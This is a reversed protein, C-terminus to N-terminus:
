TNVYLKLVFKGEAVLVERGDQFKLQLVQSDIASLEPILAHQFLICTIVIAKFNMDLLMRMKFLKLLLVIVNKNTKCANSYSEIIVRFIICVDLRTIPLNVSNKMLNSMRKNRFKEM